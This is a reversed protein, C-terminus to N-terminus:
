EGLLKGIIKTAMVKAEKGMDYEAREKSREVTLQGSRSRKSFDSMVVGTTNDVLSLEVNWMCYYWGDLPQTSPDITSAISITFDSNRKGSGNVVLGSSTLADSVVQEVARAGPGKARLGFVIENQCFRTLESSAEDASVGPLALGRGSASLVSYDSNLERREVTVNKMYALVRLKGLKSTTTDLQRSANAIVTDLGSIRDATRAAAKQRDLVALAYYELDKPNQWVDAIESGELTKRIGVNVQSRTFDTSQGSVNGNSGSLTESKNSTFRANLQVRFVEALNARASNEAEQRSDGSGVGTIYQADPYMGSKGTVWDPTQALSMAATFLILLGVISTRM